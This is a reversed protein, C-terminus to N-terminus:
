LLKDTVYLKCRALLDGALAPVEIERCKKKVYLETQNELYSSYLIIDPEELWCYILGRENLIERLTKITQKHKFYPHLLNRFHKYPIKLAGPNWIDFNQAMVTLLVLMYFGLAAPSLSQAEKNMITEPYMKLWRISKIDINRCDSFKKEEKKISM